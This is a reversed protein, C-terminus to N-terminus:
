LEKIVKYKKSENEEYYNKLYKEHWIIAETCEELTKFDGIYNFDARKCPTVLTRWEYFISAWFGKNRYLVKFDGNSNKMIRYNCIMKSNKM